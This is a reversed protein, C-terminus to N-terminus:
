MEHVSRVHLVGTVLAQPLSWARLLVAIVTVPLLNLLWRMYGEGGKQNGLLLPYNRSLKRCLLAVVPIPQKM